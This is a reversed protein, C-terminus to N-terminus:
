APQPALKCGCHKCVRAEKLVLEACDPCKVHTDPSPAGPAAKSGDTGTASWILAVLWGLGTWGLFINLLWIAGANPHKRSTANIGPVFYVILIVVAIVTHDM